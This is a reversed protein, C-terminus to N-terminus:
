PVVEGTASVKLDIFTGMALSFLDPAPKELWEGTQEYHEYIRDLRARHDEITEDAVWETRPELPRLEAADYDYGGERDGWGRREAEDVVAGWATEADEWRSKLDAYASREDDTLDHVVVHGNRPFKSSRFDYMQEASVRFLYANKNIPSSMKHGVCDREDSM